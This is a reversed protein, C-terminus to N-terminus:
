REFGTREPPPLPDGAPFSPAGARLDLVGSAWAVDDDVDAGLGEVRTIRDAGTTDTWHLDTGYRWHWHGHLMLTPGTAEVAARIIQRPEDARAQDAAPLRLDSIVDLDIGTPSDHTVLVDLADTGLRDLDTETPREHDPWWTWGPTRRRWDVSFAGGLAGFRVDNWTWRHGRPAWRIRNSLVCFGADDRAAAHKARALGGTVARGHRDPFTVDDSTFGDHNGEVYVLYELGTLRLIRDAAALWTRSGPWLAGLDGLQLIVRCGADAAVHAARQLFPLNGHIDGLVFVREIAPDTMGGTHQHGTVVVPQIEPNMTRKSDIIAGLSAM